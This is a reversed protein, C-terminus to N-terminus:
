HGAFTISILIQWVGPYSDITESCSNLSDKTQGLQTAQLQARKTPDKISGLECKLFDLPNLLHQM